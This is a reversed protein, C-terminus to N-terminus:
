VSGPLGNAAATPEIGQGLCCLGDGCEEVSEVLEEKEQVKCMGDSQQM